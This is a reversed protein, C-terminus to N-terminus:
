SPMNEFQPLDLPKVWKLRRKTFMELMPEISEPNDLSGLTVFIMGPFGELNSTFVRAGCTPCFNRDLGKGSQAVYHFAKPDGSILTFDDEPARRLFDGSRRRVGEQLRPLSLRRRLYSRYQVRVQHRRM